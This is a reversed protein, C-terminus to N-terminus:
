PNKLWEFIEGVTKGSIWKQTWEFIGGFPISRSIDVPVWGFIKVLIGGLVRGSIWEATRGSIEVPAIEVRFENFSM